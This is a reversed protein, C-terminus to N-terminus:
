KNIIFYRWISVIVALLSGVASILTVIARTKANAQNSEITDIRDGNDWAKKEVVGIKFLQERIDKFENRVEKRFDKNDHREESFDEAMKQMIIGFQSLREWDLKSIEM